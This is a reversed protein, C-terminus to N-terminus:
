RGWPGRRAAGLRGVRRATAGRDQRGCGEPDTGVRGSRVGKDCTPSAPAGAAASGCRPTPRTWAWPGESTPWRRDPFRWPRSSSGGHWSSPMRGPSGPPSGDLADLLQEDAAPAEGLAETESVPARRLRSRRACRTAFGSTMGAAQRWRSLRAGGPRGRRVLRYVCPLLKRCALDGSARFLALADGDILRHRVGHLTPARRRQDHYEPHPPVPQDNFLAVVAIFQQDTLLEDAIEQLQRREKLAGM